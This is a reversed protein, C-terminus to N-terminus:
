MVYRNSKYVGFWLKKISLLQQLAFCQRLKALRRAHNGVSCRCSNILKTTAQVFHEAFENKPEPRDVSDEKETINDSLFGQEFRHLLKGKKLFSFTNKLKDMFRSGSQDETADKTVLSKDFAQQVHSTAETVEKAHLEEEIETIKRFISDRSHM